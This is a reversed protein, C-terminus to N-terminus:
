ELGAAAEIAARKLRRWIRATAPSCRDRRIARRYIRKMARDIPRFHEACIWEMGPTIPDGKRDGRTRRCFPVICSIRRGHTM